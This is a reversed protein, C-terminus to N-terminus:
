VWRKWIKDSELKKENYRLCFNSKNKMNQLLVDRTGCFVSLKDMVVKNVVKIAM